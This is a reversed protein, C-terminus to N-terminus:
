ARWPPPVRHGETGLHNEEVEEGEEWAEGRSIALLQNIEGAHYLHHGAVMVVIDYLPATQGWHLPHPQDLQEEAVMGLSRRWAQHAQAFWAIVEDLYDRSPEVTERLGRPWGIEAWGRPAPDFAFSHYVHSWAAAHKLTGLVSRYGGPAAFLAEELTLGSLNDTATRSAHELLHQVLEVRSRM